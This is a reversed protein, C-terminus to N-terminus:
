TQNREGKSQNRNVSHELKQHEIATVLEKITYNLMEARSKMRKQTQM